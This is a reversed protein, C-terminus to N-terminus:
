PNSASSHKQKKKQNKYKTTFTTLSSRKKSDGPRTRRTCKRRKQRKTLAMKQPDRTHNQPNKPSFHSRHVPAIDHAHERKDKRKRVSEFYNRSLFDLKELVYFTCNMARIFRPSPIFTAASRTHTSM